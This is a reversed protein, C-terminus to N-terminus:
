THKQFIYILTTLPFESLIRVSSFAEAFREYMTLQLVCGSHKGAIILYALSHKLTTSFGITVGSNFTKGAVARENM